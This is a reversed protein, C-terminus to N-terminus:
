RAPSGPCWPTSRSRRASLDASLFFHLRDRKIPGSVNAGFQHVYYDRPDVGTFDKGTLAEDRRYYFFSGDLDNTGGKTVANVVGGQYNGYEVDYGNTVLAFEKISELSFAFPTRTSGRNEGFYINNADTGDIQVNTGSTRQGSIAFQGGTGAGPQPSVRPSLNLFDTFDRGAVPLNEVQQSGVRSVVGSQTADVRPAEATVVIGAVQVAQVSLDFNATTADGVSVTLTTRETPAFGISTVSVTYPGGPPLQPILYRGEVDTLTGRQFGTATNRAVVQAGAAPQDAGSTIRGRIAGTPSQAAVSSCFTLAAALALLGGPFRRLLQM